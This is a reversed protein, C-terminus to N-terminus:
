IISLRYMTRLLPLKYTRMYDSLLRGTIRREKLEDLSRVIFDDTSFDQIRNRSMELYLLVFGEREDAYRQLSGFVEKELEDRTHSFVVFIAVFMPILILLFAILVKYTLSFGIKIM